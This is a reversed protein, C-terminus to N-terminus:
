DLFDLWSAILAFDVCDGKIIINNPSDVTVKAEELSDAEAHIALVPKQIERIVAITGLTSYGFSKKSPHTIDLIKKYQAPSILLEYLIIKSSLRNDNLYLIYSDHKKVIDSITGILYVPKGQIGLLTDQFQSTYILGKGWDTVAKHKSIMEKIAQQAKLEREEIAREQKKEKERENIKGLGYYGVIAILVIGCFIYFFNKKM